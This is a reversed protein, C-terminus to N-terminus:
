HGEAFLLFVTMLAASLWSLTSESVHERLMRDWLAAFAALVGIAYLRGYFHLAHWRQILVAAFLIWCVANLAVIIRLTVKDINKSEVANQM